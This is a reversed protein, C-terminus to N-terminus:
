KEADAEYGDVRGRSERGTDTQGQKSAGTMLGLISDMGPRAGPGAIEVHEPLAPLIKNTYRNSTRNSSSKLGAKMCDNRSPHQSEQSGAHGHTPKKRWQEKRTHGDRRHAFLPWPSGVEDGEGGDGPKEKSSKSGEKSEVVSSLVRRRISHPKTQGIGNKWEDHVRAIEENLNQLIDDVMNDQKGGRELLMNQTQSISAGHYTPPRPMVSALNLSPSRVLNPKSSTVTPQPKVHTPVPKRTVEKAELIKAAYDKSSSINASFDLQLATPDSIHIITRGEVKRSRRSKQALVDIEVPVTAYSGVGYEARAHKELRYAETSSSVNYIVGEVENPSQTDGTREKLLSESSAEDPVLVWNTVQRVRQYGLIRAKKLRPEENLTFVRKLTKPDALAGHLFYPVPYTNALSKRWIPSEM